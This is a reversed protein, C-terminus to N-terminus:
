FIETRLDLMSIFSLEDFKVFLKNKINKFNFIKLAFLPYFSVPLIEKNSYIYYSIWIKAQLSESNNSQVIPYYIYIYIIM